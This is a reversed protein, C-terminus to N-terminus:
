PVQLPISITQAEGGRVDVLVRGKVPAGADPRPEPHMGRLIYTGAQLGRLVYPPQLLTASLARGDGEFEGTALNRTVPKLIYSFQGSYEAGSQTTLRLHVAAFGEMPIVFEVVSGPDVRVLSASQPSEPITTSGMTPTFILRYAGAPVNRVEVESTRPWISYGVSAGSESKLLFSGGPCADDPGPIRGDLLYRLRITGFGEVICRVTFSQPVIPLGVNTATYEIHGGEYGPAHFELVGPVPAAGGQDNLALRLLSGDPLDLWSASAGAAISEATITWVPGVPELMVPPYYGTRGASTTSVHVPEGSQDRLELIAAVLPRMELAADVDGPKRFPWPDAQGKSSAWGAGGAIISYGRTPDLGPVAFSGDPAPKATGAVNALRSAEISWEPRESEFAYVTVRDPRFGPVKSSVHGAIVPAPPAAPASNLEGPARQGAPEASSVAPAPAHADLVPPTSTRELAASAPEPAGGKLVLFLSLLVVAVVGTVVVRSAVFVGGITLGAALTAPRTRDRFALAWAARGGSSEDMRRRLKEHAEALRAHAVRATIRQRRAIAAISEGEFWHALVLSRYPEELAMVQEVLRRHLEGREVLDDSAPEHEARGAQAERAARRSDSRGFSRAANQVVEALWGRLNRRDRPPSRLAYAWVEQTVDDATGADRVLRAALKRVWGAHALLEEIRVPNTDMAIPSHWRAACTVGSGLFIVPGHSPARPVGEAAAFGRREVGERGEGGRALM